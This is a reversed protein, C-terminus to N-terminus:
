IKASAFDSKLCNRSRIETGESNVVAVSLIIIFAPLNKVKIRRVAEMGLGAFDIIESKVVHEQAILAAAGGITGLYCGGYKECAETAAPSRNGKALTVLSAGREMLEPVYSDMRQATTPGLSGIIRGPPTESPGAYFIANEKLYDPLKKGERIMQAFRAHAMDRAVILTGDLLVLSGAKYRGLSVLIKKIPQDLNIHNYVPAVKRCVEIFRAPNRELKELFVGKSTIKARINRHACCSVGISIPCSGAHRPLRIVRAAMVLHKGGFQAGLGSEEAIKMVRKEWERDRFPVGAKTGKAPLDDFYGATALKLTCLNREPSTGGIVVALHYPPCAAVGLARIHEALLKELSSENLVAKSGQVLTTKNSSGGGKAIFLFHYEQGPVAYIDIQAPLNNGTNKEDFMTVPAIQSYRLHHQKWVDSIAASMVASDDAGTRVGEGKWAVITATGTDQCIPLVGEAAIVANNILAAAVFKEARSAKRDRAIAALSELHSSSMYYAIDAFAAEVLARLAKPPVRLIKGAPPLLGVSEVPLRRYKLSLKKALNIKKSAM